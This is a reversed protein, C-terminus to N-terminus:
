SATVKSIEIELHTNNIVAYLKLNVQYETHDVSLRSYSETKSINGEIKIPIDYVNTNIKVNGQKETKSIDVNYSKGTITIDDIIVNIHNTDCILYLILSISNDSFKDIDIINMNYIDYTSIKYTSDNLKVIAENIQYSNMEVSQALTTNNEITCKEKENTCSYFCALVLFIHIFRKM